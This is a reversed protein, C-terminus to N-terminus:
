NAGTGTVPEDDGSTVDAAVVGFLVVTLGFGVWQVTTFGAFPGAGEKQGAAMAPGTLDIGQLKVSPAAQGDFSAQFLAPAGRESARENDFRLGVSQAHGQSGFDLSYFVKASYDNGDAYRADAFADGGAAASGVFGALAIGVLSRM